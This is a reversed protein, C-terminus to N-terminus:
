RKPPTSSKLADRNFLVRLILLLPITIFLVNYWAADSVFGEKLAIATLLVLSTIIAGGVSVRKQNRDM